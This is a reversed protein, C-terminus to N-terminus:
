ELEAKTIVTSFEEVDLVNDVIFDTEMKNVSCLAEKAKKAEM